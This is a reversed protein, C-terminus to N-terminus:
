HLPQTATLAAQEVDVALVAAGAAAFLVASARGIGSGAGTVIVRKGSLESLTNRRFM